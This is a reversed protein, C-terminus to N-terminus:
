SAIEKNHLKLYDEYYMWTLRTGSISKGATKLEGKCCKSITMHNINTIREAERTSNFSTCLEICYVPISQKMIRLKKGYDGNYNCWKNVTGKNLYRYVSTKGIRLYKSIEDANKMGNSWLDCTIKVLSSLAYKQCEVWSISDLNFIISLISHMINNKIFNLDSEECNIRIVEINNKNALEDKINDIEKSKEKSQGSLGNDKTHFGGDMEVIYENVDLKFYFDYKYGLAWDPSYETEFNDILQELLNFMLKNPYSIGDSCKPCGIGNKIFTGPTILKEHNCIICKLWYKKKSGYGITFPDVINKNSWYINIADNGYNNILWQGFSECKNCCIKTNKSTVFNISKLESEHIDNPCKFWCKKDSSRGIEYPKYENLDYDWRDLLDNRNNDICWQEFSIGKNLKTKRMNEASILKISCSHCYTNNYNDIQKKYDLWRVNRMEGCCDCEVDVRAGSSNKLDNVNVEFEDKYKTFIYGKEEYHKKNSTSWKLTVTKTILGM